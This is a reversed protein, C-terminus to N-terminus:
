FLLTKDRPLTWPSEHAALRPYSAYKPAGQSFRFAIGGFDYFIPPFRAAFRSSPGFIARQNSDPELFRV